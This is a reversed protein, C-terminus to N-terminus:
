FLRTQKRQERRRARRGRRLLQALEARAAREGILDVLDWGEHKRDIVVLYEAPEVGRAITACRSTVLLELAKQIYAEPPRPAIGALLDSSMLSARSVQKQVRGVAQLEDQEDETLLSLVAPWVVLAATYIAPPDDNTFPNSSSISLAALDVPIACHAQATLHHNLDRDEPQYVVNPRSFRSNGPLEWWKLVYWEGNARVDRRYGLIVIPVGAGSEEAASSARQIALAAADAAEMVVLLVIDSNTWGASTRTLYTSYNLLQQLDEESGAERRFTKMVEGCLRYRTNFSALFDPKLGNCQPRREFEILTAQIHETHEAPGWLYEVWKQFSSILSVTEEYNSFETAQRRKLQEISAKRDARSASM